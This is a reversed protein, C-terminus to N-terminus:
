VGFSAQSRLNEHDRTTVNTLAPLTQGLTPQNINLDFNATKPSRIILSRYDYEELEIGAILTHQM